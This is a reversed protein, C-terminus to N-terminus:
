ILYTHIGQDDLVEVQQIKRQWRDPEMGGRLAVVAGRLLYGPQAVHTEPTGHQGAFEGDLLYAGDVLRHGIDFQLSEDVAGQADGVGSSAIYGLHQGSAAGVAAGTSLEAAHGVVHQIFRHVLYEVGLSTRDVLAVYERELVQVAGGVELFEDVGADGGELDLSSEFIGVVDGIDYGVIPLLQLSEANLM